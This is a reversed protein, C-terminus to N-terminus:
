VVSKRDITVIYNGDEDKESLKTGPWAGAHETKNDDWIYIYPVTSSNYPKVHIVLSDETPEDHGSGTTVVKSAYSSNTVELVTAGKLNKLDGSKAGSGNNLVVNYTETTDLELVYNGDSDKQTMQKGPWAGNLATSAGTWM